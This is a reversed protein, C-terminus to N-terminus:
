EDWCHSEGWETLLSRQNENFGFSDFATAPIPSSVIQLQVSGLLEVDTSSKIRVERERKVGGLSRVARERNVRRTQTLSRKQFLFMAQKLNQVDSPSHSWCNNFASTSTRDGGCRPPARDALWVAARGESRPWDRHVIGAATGLSPALYRPLARFGRLKWFLRPPWFRAFKNDLYIKELSM